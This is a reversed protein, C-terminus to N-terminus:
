SLAETYFKTVVDVPLANLLQLTERAEAQISGFCLCSYVCACVLVFICMCLGSFVGVCWVTLRSLAGGFLYVGRGCLACISGEEVVVVLLWM